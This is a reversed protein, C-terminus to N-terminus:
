EEKTLRFLFDFAIGYCFFSNLLLSYISDIM